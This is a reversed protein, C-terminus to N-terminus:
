CPSKTPPQLEPDQVSRCGARAIRDAGTVATTSHGQRREDRAGCPKSCPACRASHCSITKHVTCSAPSAPLRRFVASAPRTTSRPSCRWLRM